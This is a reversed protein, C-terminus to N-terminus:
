TLRGPGFMPTWGVGVADGVGAADVEGDAEGPSELKLEVTWPTEMSYGDVHSTLGADSAHSRPANVKSAGPTSTMKSGVCWSSRYRDIAEASSPSWDASSQHQESSQAAACTHSVPPLKPLIVRSPATAVM